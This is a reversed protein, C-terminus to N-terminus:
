ETCTMTNNNNTTTRQEFNLDFDCPPHCGTWDFSDTHEVSTMLSHNHNMGEKGEVLFTTDTDDSGAHVHMGHWATLDEMIQNKRENMKDM